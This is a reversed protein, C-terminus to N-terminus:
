SSLDSKSNFYPPVPSFVGKVLVIYNFRTKVVDPGYSHDRFFTFVVRDFIGLFLRENTLRFSPYGKDKKFPLYETSIERVIDVISLHCLLCLFVDFSVLFFSSNLKNNNLFIKM